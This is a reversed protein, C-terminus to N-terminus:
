LFLTHVLSLKHLMVVGSFCGGPVNDLFLPGWGWEGVWGEGLRIRPASGWEDGVGGVHQFLGAVGRGGRGRGVVVLEGGMGMMVVGAGFGRREAGREPLVGVLGWEDGGLVVHHLAGGQRGETVVVGVEHPVGGGDGRLM